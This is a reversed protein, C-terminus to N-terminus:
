RCRRATQRPSFTPLRSVDQVPAPTRSTNASAQYQALHLAAEVPPPTLAVSLGPYNNLWELARRGDAETLDTFCKVGFAERCQRSLQEGIAHKVRFAAQEAHQHIAAAIENHTQVTLRQQALPSVYPQRATVHILPQAQQARLQKECEIFYRRAQRGKENREVMALEKAMDLTIAYEKTPRGRGSKEGTNPFIVFDQNELFGYQQIRDNMWTSFDKGVELFAHLERANITQVETDGIQQTNLPILQQM